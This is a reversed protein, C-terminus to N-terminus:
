RRPGSWVGGPEPDTSPQLPTPPFVWVRQLLRCHGLGPCPHGRAGRAPGEGQVALWASILGPTWLGLPLQCPHAPSTSWGSGGGLVRGPAVFLLGLARQVQPPCCEALVKPDGRFGGGARPAAAWPVQPRPCHALAAWRPLRAPSPHAGPRLGCTGPLGSPGPAMPAGRGPGRAPCGWPHHRRSSHLRGCGPSSRSSSHNVRPAAAAM